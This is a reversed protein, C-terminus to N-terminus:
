GISEDLLLHGPCTTALKGTSQAQLVTSEDFGLHLCPPWSTSRKRFVFERVVWREGPLNSVYNAFKWYQGLCVASWTKLGHRATFFNVQENWHHLIEHWPLTWDVHFPQRRALLSQSQSQVELKILVRQCLCNSSFELRHVVSFAVRKLCRKKMEFGRTPSAHAHNIPFTSQACDAGAVKEAEGTSRATAAQRRSAWDMLASMGHGDTVFVNSGSPSCATDLCDAHDADVHVQVILHQISAPHIQWRIGFHLTSELYEFNRKLRKDAAVTLQAICNGAFGLQRVGLLGAPEGEEGLPIAKYRSM